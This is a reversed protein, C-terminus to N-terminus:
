TTPLTLHTYSVSGYSVLTIDTGEKLIEIEGIPTKFQGYNSPLQEKTRYGNLPEIVVAPQDIDLLTNYFGAAKTM